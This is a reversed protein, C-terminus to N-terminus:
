RAPSTILLKASPNAQAPSVQATPLMVSAIVLTAWRNMNM